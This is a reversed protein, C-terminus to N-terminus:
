NPPMGDSSRNSLRDGAVHDQRDAIHGCTRCHTGAFARVDVAADALGAVLTSACVSV